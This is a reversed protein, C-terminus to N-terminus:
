IRVASSCGRRHAANLDLVPVMPAVDEFVAETAM